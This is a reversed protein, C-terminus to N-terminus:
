EAETEPAVEEDQFAYLCDDQCAIYLTGDPGITPSFMKYGSAVEYEWKLTGDPNVAYVSGGSSGVYITGDADIAPSTEMFSGYDVEYKWKVTGDPAVACLARALAYITGDPGIAPGGEVMNELDCAWKRTGDPNVADLKDRGGVYITGDEAIAAGQSYCNAGSVIYEWKQTGDVPSFARLTGSYSAAYVTGDSGILPSGQPAGYIMKSWKESGDPDVAVLRNSGNVVYITGDSGIAAGTCSSNQYVESEWKMTSDPNVASLTLFMVYLTGDAAIAPSGVVDATREPALKWKLTGDPNLAYLNYDDSGVYVTGDAGIVPNSRIEDEAGEFVWKLTAMQPGIVPAEDEGPEPRDATVCGTCRVDHRLMPWATDALGSEAQAQAITSLSMAILGWISIGVVISDVIPRTRRLTVLHM